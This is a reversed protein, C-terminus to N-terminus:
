ALDAASPRTTVPDQRRVRVVVAFPTPYDPPLESGVAIALDAGQHVAFMEGGTPVFHIDFRDNGDNAGNEFGFSTVEAAILLADCDPVGGFDVDVARMPSGPLLPDGVYELM